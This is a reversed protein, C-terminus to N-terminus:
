LDTVITFIVVFVSAIDSTSAQRFKSSSIVFLCLEDWEHHTTVFILQCLRVKTAALAVQVWVIRKKLFFFWQVFAAVPESNRKKKKCHSRIM